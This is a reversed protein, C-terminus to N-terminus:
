VSLWVMTLHNEGGDSGLMCTNQVCQILVCVEHEVMEKIEGDIYDGRAPSGRRNSRSLVVYSTHYRAEQPVVYHFWVIYGPLTPM